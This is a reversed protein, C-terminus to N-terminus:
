HRQERLNQALVTRQEIGPPRKEDRDVRAGLLVHKPQGGLVDLREVADDGMRGCTELDKEALRICERGQATQHLALAAAAAPYRDDDGNQRGPLHLDGQRSPELDAWAHPGCHLRQGANEVDMVNSVESRFYLLKLYMDGLATTLIQRSNKTIRGHARPLM